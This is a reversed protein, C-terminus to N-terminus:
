AMSTIANGTTVSAKAFYMRGDDVDTPALGARELTEAAARWLHWYLEHGDRKEYPSEGWSVVLPEPM